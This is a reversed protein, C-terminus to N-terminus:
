RSKRKASPADNIEDIYVQKEWAMDIAADLHAMLDRLSEGPRAVLMALFQDEDAAAAGCRVPGIRGITINGIGDILAEINKFSSVSNAPSKRGRNSESNM